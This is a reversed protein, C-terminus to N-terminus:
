VKPGLRRLIINPIVYMRFFMRIRLRRQLKYPGLNEEFPDDNGISRQIEGYAVDSASAPVALEKRGRLVGGSGSGYRNPGVHFEQISQHGCAHPTSSPGLAAPGRGPSAAALPAGLGAAAAGTSVRVAAARPCSRGGAPSPSNSTQCLM